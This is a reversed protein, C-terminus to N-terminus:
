LCRISFITKPVVRGAYYAVPALVGVPEKCFPQRFNEPLTLGFMEGTGITMDICGSFDAYLQLTYLIGALAM